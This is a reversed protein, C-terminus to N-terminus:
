HMETRIRLLLTHILYITTLYNVDIELQKESKLGSLLKKYKCNHTKEYLQLEFLRKSLETKHLLSM